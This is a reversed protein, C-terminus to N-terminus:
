PSPSLIIKFGIVQVASVVAIVIGTAIWRWRAHEAIQAKLVTIEKPNTEMHWEKLTVFIEKIDSQINDTKESMEAIKAVLGKSGNGHLVVRKNALSERVEKIDQAHAKLKEQTQAKHEKLEDLTVEIRM